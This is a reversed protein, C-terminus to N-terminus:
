QYFFAESSLLSWQSSRMPREPTVEKTKKAPRASRATRKPRAQRPPKEPGDRTIDSFFVCDGSRDMVWGDQMWGFYKGRYAYFSGDSMWAVPKGSYLYVSEGDTDVYAIARGYQNYLIIRSDM